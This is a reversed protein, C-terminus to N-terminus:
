TIYYGTTKRHPQLFSQKFSLFFKNPFCEYSRITAIASLTLFKIENIKGAWLNFHNIFLHIWEYLTSKSIQYKDCLENISCSRVLYKFLVVLIFRLSYSGYPILVDPIIAHTHGCNCKIRPITVELNERHGGCFTIMTRKYSSYISHNSSSGCCPCTQHIIDLHFLCVDFLQKDSLKISNLKCLIALARIMTTHM